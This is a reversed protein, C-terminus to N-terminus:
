ENLTIGIWQQLINNLDSVSNCEIDAYTGISNKYIQRAIKLRITRWGLKTPAIFDKQPNDGIYVLKSHPIGWTEVITEFARPHPKWFELGWMDTFIALDILKDIGLATFKAQQVIYYGDTILGIRIGHDRLYMIIDFIGPMLQINPTHYRYLQVMNEVTTISLLVPWKILVQDFITRRDGHEFINIMYKYLSEARYDNGMALAEAVTRFGSLVYDYEFYLTDDLDFVVGEVLDM